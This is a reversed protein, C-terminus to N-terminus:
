GALAGRGAIMQGKQHTQFRFVPHLYSIKHMLNYKETAPDYRLLHLFLVLSAAVSLRMYFLVALVFVRIICSSCSSFSFSSRCNFFYVASCASFARRFSVTDLCNFDISHSLLLNDESSSFM